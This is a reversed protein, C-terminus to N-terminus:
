SPDQRLIAQELAILDPGPDLGLENALMVRAQRLTRLSEAQRGAQYEALALLAWRRERMPARALLAQADSLVDRYRGARLAADIRLEEADLRMQELRGAEIRGAEWEELDVLAHGRWLALAEEAVYAAHEPEGLTLLERARRLLRDFEHADVDAGSVVLRLGSTHDRDGVGSCEGSDFSAAKSSRARHLQRISGWLADALRESTVVDGPHLALASLVVRDRPGIGPAAM